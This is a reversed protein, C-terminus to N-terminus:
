LLNEKLSTPFPKALSRLGEEDLIFIKHGQLKILNEDKLKSLTRIATETSVGAMEALDTRSLEVGIYQSPGEAGEKVGYKEKMMLLLRALREESSEYAIEVLKSQFGKVERSLKEIIKIAVTPYKKLFALFDEKKIFCLRADELTKAYAIYPEGDFVTEEGLLEGSSLLKLLHRKKRTPSRRVLKVKGRCLIYLGFAPVGEQFIMEEKGYEIPEMLEVLEVFGEESLESFIWSCREKSCDRLCTAKM